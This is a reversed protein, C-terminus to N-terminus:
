IRRGVAVDHRGSLWRYAPVHLVFLGGPRLASVLRRLGEIAPEAGTESIVDFSVVLDLDAQPLIPDLIDAQFLDVTDPTKCRALELWAGLERLTEGTGCGADLIRPGRPLEFRSLHLIRNMLDRLGRYWWHHREVEAMIEHEAPRM